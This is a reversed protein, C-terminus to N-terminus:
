IIVLIKSKLEDYLSYNENKEFNGNPLKVM